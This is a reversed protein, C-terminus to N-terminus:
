HGGHGHGGGRSMNQMILKAYDQETLTPLKQM